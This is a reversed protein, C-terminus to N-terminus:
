KSTELRLWRVHGGCACTTDYSKGFPVRSVRLCRDCGLVMIKVPETSSEASPGM